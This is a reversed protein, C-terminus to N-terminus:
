WCSEEAGQTGLLDGVTGVDGRVGRGVEPCATHQGLDPLVPSPHALADTAASDTPVARGQCRASGGGRGGGKGKWGKGKWGTVLMVTKPPEGNILLSFGFLGRPRPIARPTKNERGQQASAPLAAGAAQLTRLAAGARQCRFPPRGVEEQSVGM